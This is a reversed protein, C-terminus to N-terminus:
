RLLASFAQLPHNSGFFGPWEQECLRADQTALGLLLETVSLNFETCGEDLLPSDPDHISKWESSSGKTLWYLAGGDQIFAWPFLGGSEPYIPYVSELFDERLKHLHDCWAPGCPIERCWWVRSNAPDRVFPNAIHFNEFWVGHGYVQLLEKYCVPLEFGLESETSEFGELLGRFKRNSPPRVLEMLQKLAEDTPTIESQIKIAM